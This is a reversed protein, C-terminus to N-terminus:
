VVLVVSTTITNALMYKEQLHTSTALGLSRISVLDTLPLCSTQTPQQKAVLIQTVCALITRLMWYITSFAPLYILSSQRYGRVIMVEKQTHPSGPYSASFAYTYVLERGFGHTAYKHLTWSHPKFDM